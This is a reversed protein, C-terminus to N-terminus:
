WMKDIQNRYKKNLIGAIDEIAIHTYHSTMQQSQHGTTIRLDNGELASQMCTNYTHRLSHIVINREGSLNIEVKVLANNFVNRIKQASVSSKGDRGTFIKDTDSNKVTLKKWQQLFEFAKQPPLVPRAKGNKTTGLINGAKIAKNIYVFKNAWDIDAWTLARLEGSRMGSSLCLYILSVNEWNGWISILENTDPPFLKKIEDTTLIDRHKYLTKPLPKIKACPNATILESEEAFELITSLSGFVKNITNHAPIKGKLSAPKIKGEMIETRWKRIESVTISTLQYQAFYPLLYNILYARFDKVLKPNIPHGDSARNALHQCKGIVFFDTTFSQFTIEKGIHLENSLIKECFARAAKETTCGTTHKTRKEDSGLRYYFIGGKKAPKILRYAAKYQAM